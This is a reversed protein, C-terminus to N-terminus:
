KVKIKLECFVDMESGDSCDNEIFKLFDEKEKQLEKVRKTLHEDKADEVLLVRLAEQKLFNIKNNILKLVVQRGKHLSYNSNVLVYDKEIM